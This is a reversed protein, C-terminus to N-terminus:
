SMRIIEEIREDDLVMFKDHDNLIVHGKLIKRLARRVMTTIPGRRSFWRAADRRESPSLIAWNDRLLSKVLQHEEKRIAVEEPSPYRKRGAGSLGKMTAYEVIDSGDHFTGLYVTNSRYYKGQAEVEERGLISVPKGPQDVHSLGRANKRKYVFSRPKGFLESGLLYASTLTLRIARDVYAWGEITGEKTRHPTPILKVKDIFPDWNISDSKMNQWGMPLDKPGPLLVVPDFNRAREVILIRYYLGDPMQRHGDASTIVEKRDSKLKMTSAEDVSVLRKPEQHELIEGTNWWHFLFPLHAAIFSVCAEVTDDIRRGHQHKHIKKALRYAAMGIAAKTLTIQSPDLPDDAGFDKKTLIADGSRISKTSGVVDVLCRGKRLRQRIEKQENLPGDSMLWEHWRDDPDKVFRVGEAGRQILQPVDGVWLSMMLKRLERHTMKIRKSKKKETNRSRKMKPGKPVEGDLLINAIGHVRHVEWIPTESLGLKRRWARRRLYFAMRRVMEETIEKDSFESKLFRRLKHVWHDSLIGSISTPLVDLKRVFIEKPLLGHPDVKRDAEIKKLALLNRMVRRTHSKNM